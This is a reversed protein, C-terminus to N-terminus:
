LNYEKLIEDYYNTLKAYKFWEQTFTVTQDKWPKAVCHIITPNRFAELIEKENYRNDSPLKNNYNKVGEESGLNYIGFKPPLTGIKGHCVTNVVTQDHQLLKDNNEKIFKNFQDEVNDKRLEQLNVLMVGDCIYFDDKVGFEKMRNIGNQNNDLFGRYYYGEMDLNFMESLDYFSLIDGDLWIIKDLNPLLSSLALRYYAPTTIHGKDNAGKFRDQMNILQIKCNKYKEQLSLVKDKNENALNNPHMVYFDCTTKPHANEMISTIAVITPYTYGDDMAMAIPLNTTYESVTCAAIFKKCSKSNFIFVISGLIFLLIILILPIVKKLWINQKTNNTM